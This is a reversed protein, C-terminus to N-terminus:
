AAFAGLIWGHVARVAPLRRLDRHVVLWPARGPVAFPVPVEVLGAARGARLPLLGVGAGAATATVLARTSGTRVVVAAEAGAAALWDLEPLRGYSDDYVILREAGLDLSDPARGGLYAESAFLGLRQEPLKRALLSNGEPRRMRVAVDAERAALSVVSAESRLVITLGPHARHLHPLAPALVDSVIFETASVVVTERDGGRRMAAAARGLRALGDAVPEALAAMREGNPTLRAGDMRRDVLRLGLTAELADLRRSATSVAVGLRRAAGSLSGARAVGLLLDIDAADVARLM